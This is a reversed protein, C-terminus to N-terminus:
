KAKHFIMRFNLSFPEEDFLVDSTSYKQKFNDILKNVSDELSLVDKKFEFSPYVTEESIGDESHIKHPGKSIINDEKKTMPSRKQKHNM